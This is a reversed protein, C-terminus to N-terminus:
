CVLAENANRVSDLLSGHVDDTNKHEEPRENSDRFQCSGTTGGGVTGGTGPLRIRLWRHGFAWRAPPFYLDVVRM